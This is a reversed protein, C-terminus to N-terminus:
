FDPYEHATPIQGYFTVVGSQDRLIMGYRQLAEAIMRGLPPLDLRSLDLKPDLRFRAGEPIANAGPDVGDTRQAPLSYRGAMAKPISFALAHDIRGRRLDGPTILGGALALGSATAGYKVGRPGPRFVGESRSVHAIRGGWEARWAGEQRQLKFFEWMTDTAPQWLVLHGDSGAAPEADDPLPVSRFPAALAAKEPPLSVDVRPQGAGVTYVRTSFDGVNIDPGFHADAERALEARLVAVRAASSPDLAADDELAKNWPADPGFFRGCPPGSDSAPLVATDLRTGDASRLEVAVPDSSCSSVAGLARGSLPVRVTGDGGVEAKASARAGGVRVVVSVPAPKAPGVLRVALAGSALAQTRDYPTAGLRLAGKGGDPTSSLYPPRKDGGCAAVAASLAVCALVSTLGLQRNARLSATM